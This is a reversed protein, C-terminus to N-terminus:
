AQQGRRAITRPDKANRPGPLLNRFVGLMQYNGELGLAAQYLSANLSAEGSVIRDFLEKSTTIVCDADRNERSVSVTGGAVAVFWHDLEGDRLLDLRISGNIKHLRDPLPRENLGEFFEETPDTM